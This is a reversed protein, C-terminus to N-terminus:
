LIGTASPLATELAPEGAALEPSVTVRIRQFEATARNKQVTELQRKVKEINAVHMEECIADVKKMLAEVEEWNDAKGAENKTVEFTVNGDAHITISTGAVADGGEDLARHMGTSIRAIDAEVQKAFEPDNEMRELAKPHIHVTPLKAVGGVAPTYPGNQGDRVATKSIHVNYKNAWEVVFDPADKFIRLNPNKEIAAAEMAEAFGASGNATQIGTQQQSQTITDMVALVNLTIGGTIKCNPLTFVERMRLITVFSLLRFHM